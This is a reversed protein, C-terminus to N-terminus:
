IDGKDKRRQNYDANQQVKSMGKTQLETQAKQAPYGYSIKVGRSQLEAIVEDLTPRNLEERRNSIAKRVDDYELKDKSKVITNYAEKIEKNKLLSPNKHIDSFLKEEAESAMNVTDEFENLQEKSMKNVKTKNKSMNEQVYDLRSKTDKVLQRGQAIEPHLLGYMGAFSGGITLLQNVSGQISM